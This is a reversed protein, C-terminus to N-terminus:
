ALMAVLVSPPVLVAAEAVAVFRQGISIDPSPTSSPVITEEAKERAASMTLRM